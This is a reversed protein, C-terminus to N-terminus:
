GPITQLREKFYNNAIESLELLSRQDSQITMSLIPNADADSKAVIPPDVDPPLNRLAQAVRDRVDNAAAEMDVDLEFEVTITSRGDGSISSLTRIGAIGNISEELVETVQSEMIDANAGTYNTTVTVVPPDV